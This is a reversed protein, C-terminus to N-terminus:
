SWLSDPESLGKEKAEKRKWLPMEGLRAFVIGNLHDLPFYCTRFELSRRVPVSRAVPKVSADRRRSRCAARSRWASISRM